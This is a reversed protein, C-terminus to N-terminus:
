TAGAVRKGGPGVLTVLQSAALNSELESLEDARGVFSTLQQGFRELGRGAISQRFAELRKAAAPSIRARGSEWRNVTVYSVGLERALQEQSLGLTARLNRLVGISAEAAEPGNPLSGV